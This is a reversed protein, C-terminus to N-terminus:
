SRIDDDVDRPECREFQMSTEEKTPCGRSEGHPIALMEGPTSNWTKRGVTVVSSVATSSEAGPVHLGIKVKACGHVLLQIREWATFKMECIAFVNEPM